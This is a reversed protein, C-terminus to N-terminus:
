LRDTTLEEACTLGEVGTGTGAAITSRKSAGGKDAPAM